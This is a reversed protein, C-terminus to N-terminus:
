DEKAKGFCLEYLWVLAIMPLIVFVTILLGIIIELLFLVLFAIGSEARDSGLVGKQTMWGM